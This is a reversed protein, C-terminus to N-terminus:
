PPVLRDLAQELTASSSAVRFRELRALVDRSLLLAQAGPAFGDLAARWTSLPLDFRAEASWAVPDVRVGQPTSLLVTGSFLLLLPLVGDDIAACYRSAAADFDTASM